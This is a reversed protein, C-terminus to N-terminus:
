RSQRRLPTSNGSSSTTPTNRSGPAPRSPGRTGNTSGLSRSWTHKSGLFVGPQVCGASTSDAGDRRLVKRVQRAPVLPSGAQGRWSNLKFFMSGGQHRLHFLRKRNRGRWLVVIGGDHVISCRERATIASAALHKRPAHACRPGPARSQLNVPLLRSKNLCQSHAHPQHAHNQQLLAPHRLKM